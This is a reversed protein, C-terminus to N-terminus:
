TRNTLFRGRNFLLDGLVGAVRTPVEVVQYYLMDEWILGMRLEPRVFAWQAILGANWYILLTAGALVPLVGARTRVQEILAALGLAFIPTCALLRRFGFSGSLHWTTGFSGNIYTQAVFGLLLLVVLLWDRRALWVLGILGILLVPSWLFAGHEPHILTDFFHPSVGGSGQLKGSVVTSPFPRGNLVQYTLFQPLLVLALCLLFLIHGLFLRGAQERGQKRNGTGQGRNGTLLLAYAVLGEVAPLLLLLGLQERTISMLGGVVGLLAWNWLPRQARRAILPQGEGGRLWLTLFLAFLFFATAHSWPMAIYTYFVLPSALWVSLVALSAALSSVFRRALRYTLLLGALAYFASMFCASWIYPASYGDTPIAAGFARVVHVGADALAFGPSWMVACGIPALNRYKGTEPNLPPDDPHPRLLANYVAPDGNRMGVEAFHEYENHFDLDGDMYVSRLYAYYQVEDTAYIRPTSLPLLILFVVVIAVAGWERRLM